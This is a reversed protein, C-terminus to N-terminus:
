DKAKDEGPMGGFRAMLILIKRITKLKTGHSRMSVRGRQGIDLAARTVTNVTRNM